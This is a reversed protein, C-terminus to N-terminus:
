SASEFNGMLKILSVLGVFVGLAAAGSAQAPQVSISFLMFGALLVSLLNFSSQVRPQLRKRLFISIGCIVLILAVIGAVQKSIPFADWHTRPAAEATIKVPMWLCAFVSIALLMQVIQGVLVGTRHGMYGLLYGALGALLILALLRFVTASVPLVMQIAHGEPTLRTPLVRDFSKMEEASDIVFASSVTLRSLPRIGDRPVHMLQDVVSLSLDDVKAFITYKGDLHPADGLLICLATAGSDPDNDLRGLNVMGRCHKLNSWEAKLPHIAAQQEPTLPTLRDEASGVQALFNPEMRYFHITDLAGLRGLKLFQATHQPAERCFFRMVIDGAETRLILRECSLGQPDAADETARLSVATCACLALGAFARLLSM